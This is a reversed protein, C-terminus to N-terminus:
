TPCTILTRQGIVRSALFRHVQILGTSTTCRGSAKVEAVAGFGFSFARSIGSMTGLSFVGTLFLYPDMSSSYPLRIAETHELGMHFNSFSVPALEQLCIRVSAASVARQM